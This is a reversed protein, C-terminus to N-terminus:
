KKDQKKTKNPFHKACIRDLCANIFRVAGTSGIEKTIEIAENIIIIADVDTNLLEAVASRLISQEIPTVQHGKTFDSIIDDIQHINGTAFTFNDLFYKADVPTDSYEKQNFELLEQAVLDPAKTNEEWAYLAQISSIRALRRSEKKYGM